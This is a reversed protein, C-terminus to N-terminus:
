SETQPQLAEPVDLEVWQGNQVQFVAILGSACDGRTDCTLMGTLGRYRRTARIAQILAERDIVLDGNPALIAAKQLALLIIQVADYTQAHYPGLAQPEIGYANEYATQFAQNAGANGRQLAFTAYTGEAVTVAFDLFDQNLIGDVSFFLIGQGGPNARLAQVLEIAEQSYGAFYLAQPAKSVVEQILEAYDVTAPDFDRYFLTTGGESRFTEQVVQSLGQGYPTGNHLVALRTVGLESSLYRAAVGGQINDNVAMRNVVDLNRSTLEGATSVSVMPIRAAQYVESAPISAGSCLHGVVAVIDGQQAFDQAVERALDPECRDDEIVLEIPFGLLGGAANFENIALDASQAMDLGAGPLLNSLDTALGLKVTQGMPITTTSSPSQALSHPLSGLAVILFFLRYLLQLNM